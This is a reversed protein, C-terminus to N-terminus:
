GHDTTFQVSLQPLAVPSRRHCDPRVSRFVSPRASQNFQEREEPALDPLLLPDFGRDTCFSRIRATEDATLPSRKLCFGLTGWGRVAALHAVPSEIGEADLLEALTAALRLPARPPYDMWASLCFMGDPALHQWIETFAERTLSHQEHLAFVGATGGFAGLTPLLILDYRQPDSALWTRPEASVLHLQPRSFFVGATQPYSELLLELAARHPEVATITSAQHNLAQAASLGTGAHLVLVSATPRVAYPLGLTTFDLLRAADTFAGAPVFGFWDGNSFLADGQPIAGRYNLSLGPAFRLAPSSVARVQGYPDNRIAVTRSEPLDLTKQLDKFQSLPLEPPFALALAIAATTTAAPLWLWNRQRPLLLLGAALVPLALIPALQEPAFHALAAIGLLGGLGSGILNVFYTIGIQEAQEVFLIGIVLAGLFFPLSLLLCLALLLVAQAPDYPLLYSDFRAFLLQVRGAACAM